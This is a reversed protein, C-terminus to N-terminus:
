PRHKPYLKRIKWWCRGVIRAHWHTHIPSLSPWSLELLKFKWQIWCLWVASWIHMFDLSVKNVFYVLMSHEKSSFSLIEFTRTTATFFYYYSWINILLGRNPNLLHVHFLFSSRPKVIKFKRLGQSQWFLVDLSLKNFLPCFVLWHVIYIPFEGICSCVTRCWSFFIDVCYIPFFAHSFNLIVVKLLLNMKLNWPRSCFFKRNGTLMFSNTLRSLFNIACICVSLRVWAQVSNHTWVCVCM